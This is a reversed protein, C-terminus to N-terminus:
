DTPLAAAYRQLNDLETAYIRELARPAFRREFFGGIGGAGTWTTVIRVRCGEGDPDVTFTTVLSSGTDSETLVRGPDPEAVVMRYQRVRGGAQFTYSVVTGAGVGGEEVTFDSFASPLIRPHHETMDALCRYAVDAPVTLRREASATVTAMGVAHCPGRWASCRAADAM